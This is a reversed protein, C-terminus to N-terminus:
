IRFNFDVNLVKVKANMSNSVPLESCQVGDISSVWDVSASISSETNDSKVSEGNGNFSGDFLDFSCNLCIRYASWNGCSCARILIVSENFYTDTPSLFIGSNRESQFCHNFTM